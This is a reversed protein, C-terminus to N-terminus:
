LEQNERRVYLEPETLSNVEIDYKESVILYKKSDLAQQEGEKLRASLGKNELRYVLKRASERGLKEKAAAPYRNDKLLLGDLMRVEIVTQFKIEVQESRGTLSILVGSGENKILVNSYSDDPIQDEWLEKWKGKKESYQKQCSAPQEGRAEQEMCIVEEKLVIEVIVPYSAPLQQKINEASDGYFSVEKAGSQYFCDQFAKREVETVEGPVCVAIKPKLLSQFASTKKLMSQFMKQAIMYDAVFGNKLPCVVCIDEQTSDSFREAEKGAAIVKSTQKDYALLSVEKIVTNKKRDYIIISVPVHGKRKEIDAM